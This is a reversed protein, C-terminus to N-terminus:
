GARRPPASPDRGRPARRRGGTAVAGTRAPTGRALTRLLDLHQRAATAASYRKAVVGAGVEARRRLDDPACLHDCLVTALADVDDVPFLSGFRGGELIEEPGSRCRAAAVPVALCVAEVLALGFGEYRSPFVFLDARSVIVLPNSVFGTFVVSRQAGLEEALHQLDDRDPGEGMVVVAHHPAGLALARAHARVLVDFGKQDNLRGCGVVLPGEPLSVEPASTARRRVEEVDIGNPVAVVREARLGLGLAGEALDESVCVVLDARTLARRTAEHFRPDIHEALVQELWSHMTVALPRRAARAATAALLLGPQVERGSLVVDSRRALWWVKALGLAYVYRFRLDRETVFRIDVGPPVPARRLSEKKELVVVVVKAGLDQWRRVRDLNVRISGNEELDPEVVVVHLRGKTAARRRSIRM